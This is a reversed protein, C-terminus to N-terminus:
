GVASRGTIREFLRGDVRLNAVNHQLTDQLSWPSRQLREPVQPSYLMAPTGAAITSFGQALCAARLSESFHRRMGYPYAFHVVPMSVIEELVQKSRRIEQRADEEPIATLMPHSHTHAGITHGDEHLARLDESTLPVHAGTHRLRRYYNEMEPSGLACEFPLTNVYFTVRIRLRDFLRRAEYWTRYNDDFSIFLRRDSSQALFQLPDTTRYDHETSFFEVVRTFGEWDASELSHFYLAIRTSLPGRL